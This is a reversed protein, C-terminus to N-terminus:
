SSLMKKYERPTIGIKKKFLRAFYGCDHIGVKSAVDAISLNTTNLLKIAADIRKSHIYETISTGTEKSFENSLFSANKHFHDAISSLTLEETLNHQIYTLINRIQYTYEPYCYNYLLLSYKRTMESPLRQLKHHNTTTSIMTDYSQYLHLVYSPHVTSRILADKCHTNFISMFKRLESLSTLNQFQLFTLFSNLQDMTKAYDGTMLADLYNLLLTRYEECYQDSQEKLNKVNIVIEHTEESYNIYEQEVKSYGPLYRELLHCLMTTVDTVSVTPLIHYFQQLIQMQETSASSDKFLRQFSTISIEEELFPGVSIFDPSNDLSVFAIINYFSLSSKVILIKYESKHNEFLLSPTPTNYTSWMMRRFGNDIKDLNDYPYSFYYSNIKFGDKLIQHIFPFDANIDSHTHKKQNM